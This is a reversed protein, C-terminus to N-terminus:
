ENKGYMEEFYQDEPKNVVNFMARTIHEGEPEGFTDDYVIGCIHLTSFALEVKTKGSSNSSAQFVHTGDTNDTGRIRKFGNNRLKDAQKENVFGFVTVTVFKTGNNTTPIYMGDIGSIGHPATVEVTYHENQIVNSM